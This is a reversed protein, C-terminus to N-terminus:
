ISAWALEPERYMSELINRLIMMGHWGWQGRPRLCPDAAAQKKPNHTQISGPLISTQRKHTNHTTLYPHRCHASCEDLPISCHRTYNLTIMFSTCHLSVPGSPATSGHPPHPPILLIYHLRSIGNSFLNCIFLKEEPKCNKYASTITSPKTITYMRKHNNLMYNLSTISQIHHVPLSIFFRKHSLQINCDVTQRSPVLVAWLFSSNSYSSGPSRVM